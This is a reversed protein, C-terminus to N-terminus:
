EEDWKKSYGKNTAWITLWAIVILILGGILWVSGPVESFMGCAERWEIKGNDRM